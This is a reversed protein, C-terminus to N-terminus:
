PSAGCYGSENGSLQMSISWSCSVASAETAANAAQLATQRQHLKVLATEAKRKAADAAARQKRADKEHAAYAPTEM